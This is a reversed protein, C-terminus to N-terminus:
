LPEITMRWFKSTEKFQQRIEDPVSFSSREYEKSEIKWDGVVANRGKFSEKVEELLEEREKSAPELEAIRNLKAVWEEDTLIEYGPGFSVGPFCVTKSFGCRQCENSVQVEVEPITDAAIHANVRELKQLITEVYELNKMLIFTKQCKEGTSKNKFLIIGSEAGEMMCYLLVQAPYGRVWPYKSGLLEEPAKDKIGAFVGPSCSKIELPILKGDENRIKGDIRGSLQFKKWDYPRQQEVVEFGAEELERILAREHVPGEDFIRQLGIDHPPLKDIQTRILVLYRECPKGTESAWNTRHPIVKIRKATAEDLVSVLDIM